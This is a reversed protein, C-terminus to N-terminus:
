GTPGDSGGEGNLERKVDARLTPPVDKALGRVEIWDWLRRLLALPTATGARAKVVLAWGGLLAAGGTGIAAAITGINEM